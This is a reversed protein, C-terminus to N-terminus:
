LKEINGTVYKMKRFILKLIISLYKIIFFLIGFMGFFSFSLVLMTTTWGAVPKKSIFIVLTYIGVFASFFLMTLSLTLSVKNAIDTFIIFSDVALTSRDKRNSDRTSSVVKKPIYDISDLKLGCNAYAVKRYPLAVNLQKIRNIARRSLIRFSETKLGYQINSYRNFLSYFVRSSMKSGTKPSASVIDYGQQCRNYVSMIIDMDAGVMVLDDFEFVYDGSAYDVGANMSNELGHYFGMDIKFLVGGSLTPRYKRIEDASNDLSWDNVCIIEYNKFNETLTEGLQKIFAGIIGHANHVYLVASVFNSEKDKM